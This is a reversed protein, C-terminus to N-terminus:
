WRESSQCYSYRGTAALSDALAVGRVRSSVGEVYRMEDDRGFCAVLIRENLNRAVYARECGSIAILAFSVLMLPRM